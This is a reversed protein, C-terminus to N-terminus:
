INATIHPFVKYFMIWAMLLTLCLNFSQGCVYLILPKGGKFYEKLERFDTSLGISTFALCFFWGRFHGAFGKIAGQEVLSYGLDSGLSGSILSFVISAGIFGLVFKPFRYWIEMPDVKEGPRAEVKTTFYVAVFFAIVGILVNQIMKVTAAVYLGKEGLFAGAAAVAGTSDITGGIWAGGLVEPIGVAKIFMPMLVMMIATFVLSLGVALTLEEKKAKAAAATAIAASVGCVSMDASITINLSKSPMKVVKQGFWYTTVLVIPTVVWAVFIGATGIAIVKEFLIEGGLLVLGTKIFYETKAASLVFKPTGVTNSILMGIIIAWAAYEINYFKITSQAAVLFSLVAIIFVVVFGALFKGIPIDKMFILGIAFFLGLAAMFALWYPLLNYPKVDAKKKADSAAKHAKRWDGIAAKAAENLATDKFEAKAAADEAEKAKAFAEEEKAKAEDYKPKAKESKAAAAEASLYVSEIPNATWRQPHTTFKAITKAIDADTGKIKKKADNAKHYAITKFPAKESEIKLIENNKAIKEKMEDNGMPLFIFLGIALIILGLWIAWYDEKRWLETWRSEKLDPM